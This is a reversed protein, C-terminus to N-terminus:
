HETSTLEVHVGCLGAGHPAKANRSERCDQFIENGRLIKPLERVAM